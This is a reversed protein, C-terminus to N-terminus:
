AARQWAQGLTTSWRRIARTNKYALGQWFRPNRWRNLLRLDPTTWNKAAMRTSMVQPHAGKFSECTRLDWEFDDTQLEFGPDVQRGDYLSQFYDLKASMHQPPKVYGYHFVWAGTRASRLKRKGIRFGCADGYSQVGIRPRVIRIQRRYPLPDRITYDARFHHYRFSLGEVSNNPLHKLMCARIRDLDNEHIVEDAQLYFCWDGGCQSLALNTQQALVQGGQRVSSDWVTDIIEIKPDDLGVVLERTGDTGDGVAVVFRDVIPLISRISEVVPYDYRVANRVITFGTVEM